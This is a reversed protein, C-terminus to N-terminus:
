LVHKLELYSVSLKGALHWPQYPFWGPHPWCTPSCCSPSQGPSIDIGHIAGDHGRNWEHRPIAPPVVMWRCVLWWTGVYLGVIELLAHVSQMWMWWNMILVIRLTFQMHGPLVHRWTREAVLEADQLQVPSGSSRNTRSSPVTAIKQFATTAAALSIGLLEPYSPQCGLM